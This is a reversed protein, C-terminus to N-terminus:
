GGAAPTFRAYAERVLADLVSWDAVRLAPRRGERGAGYHRNWPRDFVVCPGIRHRELAALASPADEVALHFGLAAVAEISLTPRPDEPSGSSRQYKDAYVVELDPLGRRDLWQRTTAHCAAPRGTVVLPALGDDIWGRLTRCAGPTEPFDALVADDHAREMFLRYEEEALAFSVRLDFSRIDEYAVRRGTWRELWVALTRATEAIVDDFDVYVRFM